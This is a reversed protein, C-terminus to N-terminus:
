DNFVDETDTGVRTEYAKVNLGPNMQKAISCATM